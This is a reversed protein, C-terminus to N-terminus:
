DRGHRHEDRQVMWWVLRGFFVCVLAIVVVVLILLGM